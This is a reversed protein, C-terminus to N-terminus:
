DEAAHKADAKLSPHTRYLRWVLTWLAILPSGLIQLWADAGLRSTTFAAAIAVLALTTLTLMTNSFIIVSPTVDARHAAIVGLRGIGIFVVVVFALFILVAIAPSPSIAPRLLDAFSSGLFVWTQFPHGFALDVIMSWLAGAAAAILGARIWEGRGHHQPLNAAVADRATSKEDNEKSADTPVIEERGNQRV